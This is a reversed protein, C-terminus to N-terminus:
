PARIFEKWHQFLAAINSSTMLPMVAKLQDDSRHRWPM